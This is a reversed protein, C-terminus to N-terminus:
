LTMIRSLILPPKANKAGWLPSQGQVRLVGETARQGYSRYCGWDLFSAVPRILFMIRWTLYTLLTNEPCINRKVTVRNFWNLSSYRLWMCVYLFAYLCFIPAPVSLSFYVCVSLCAPLCYFYLCVCICVYMLVSLCQCVSSWKSLWVYLCASMCVFQCVFMCPVCNLLVINWPQKFDWKMRRWGFLRSSFAAVGSGPSVRM